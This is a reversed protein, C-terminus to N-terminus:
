GHDRKKLLKLVRDAFLHHPNAEVPIFWHRDSAFRACKIADKETMLVPLDDADFSIDAATFAHHDPFAHRNVIAGNTELLKFFREPHGIGCLAHVATGKLNDLTYHESSDSLSTIPGTKLKMEYEGRAAGDNAVVLDVSALRSLGERLPGAPLCRGNGHRRVGDIVVIELDRQLRLHQLGDDCILVDCEVHALLASATAVRDRGAAVPCGSRRALLVSEDGVVIPDSDTRVQQPWDRAIGGYGHCVIAPKFGNSKLFQALWAVLPTKGTGGAVVNGVVVVPVDLRVSRRLRLQYAIRRGKMVLCYLWGFPALLLSVPHNRRYWIRNMLRALLM